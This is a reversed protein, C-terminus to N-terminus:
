FIFYYVLQSFLTIPYLNFINSIIIWIESKLKDFFLSTQLIELWSTTLSDSPSYDRSVCSNDVHMKTKKTVLITSLESHYFIHMINLNFTPSWVHLFGSASCKFIQVAKLNEFNWKEFHFHIKKFIAFTMQKTFTRGLIDKTIM